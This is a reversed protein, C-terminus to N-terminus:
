EGTKTQPLGPDAANLKLNIPKIEWAAGNALDVIAGLEVWCINGCITTGFQFDKDLDFTKKYNGKEIRLSQADRSVTLKCPTVCTHTGITAKAGPPVTNIQLEQTKGHVISSCGQAGALLLVLVFMGKRM